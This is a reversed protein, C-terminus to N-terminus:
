APEVTLTVKYSSLTKHEGLPEDALFHMLCNSEAFDEILNNMVDSVSGQINYYGVAKVGIVKTVTETKNKVKM